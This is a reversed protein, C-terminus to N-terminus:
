SNGVTVVLCVGGSGLSNEDAKQEREDHAAKPRRRM